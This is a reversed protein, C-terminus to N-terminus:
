RGCFFCGTCTGSCSAIGGSGIAYATFGNPCSQAGTLPNNSSGIGGNSTCYIGGFIMAPQGNATLRAGINVSGNVDLKVAPTATGVGVNGNATPNLLVNGTGRSTVTLDQSADSGTAYITAYGIGVGQTQNDHRVELIPATASSTNATILGVRPANATPNSVLLGDRAAANV